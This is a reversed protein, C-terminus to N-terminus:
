HMATENVTCKECGARFAANNADGQAKSCHSRLTECVNLKSGTHKQHSTNDISITTCLSDLCLSHVNLVLRQNLTSSKFYRPSIMEYYIINEVASETSLFYSRKIESTVTGALHKWPKLQTSGCAFPRKQSTKNRSIEVMVYPNQSLLFLSFSLSLHFGDLAIPQVTASAEEALM